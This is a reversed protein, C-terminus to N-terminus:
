RVLNDHYINTSFLKPIFTKVYLKLRNQLVQFQEQLLHLLRHFM